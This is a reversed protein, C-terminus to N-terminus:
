RGYSVTDEHLVRYIKDVKKKGLGPVDELDRRDAKMINDISEFRQLLATALKPGIGPLSRLVREKQVEPRKSRYGTRTGARTGLRQRQQFLTYIYWASEKEDRSRLVPLGYTQALTILAGKIADLAISHQRTSFGEGEILVIGRERLQALRYAQDFLRGDMISLCFDDITKREVVTDPLVCYDGTKLQEYRISLKFTATLERALLEANERYDVTIACYSNEGDNALPTMRVKPDTVSSEM